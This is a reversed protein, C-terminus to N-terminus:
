YGYFIEFRWFQLYRYDVEKKCDLEKLLENHKDFKKM